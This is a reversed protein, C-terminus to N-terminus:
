SAAGSEECLLKQQASLGRNRKAELFAIAYHKDHREREALHKRWNSAGIAGSRVTQVPGNTSQGQPPAQNQNETPQQQQQM